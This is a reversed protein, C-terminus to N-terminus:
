VDRNIRIALVVTWDVIESRNHSRVVDYVYNDNGEEHDVYEDTEDNHRKLVLSFLLVFITFEVLILNTLNEKEYASFFFFM